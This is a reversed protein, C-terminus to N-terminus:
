KLKARLTSEEEGCQELAFYLPESSKLSCVADLYQTAAERLEGIQRCCDNLADNFEHFQMSLKRSLKTNQAEIAAVREKLERYRIAYSGVSPMDKDDLMEIQRLCEELQWSCDKLRAKLDANERELAEIREQLKKEDDTPFGAQFEMWSM